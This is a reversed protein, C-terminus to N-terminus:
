WGKKTRLHRATILIRLVENESNAKEIREFVDPMAKQYGLERAVRKASIQYMKM